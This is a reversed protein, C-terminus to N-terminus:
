RAGDSEGAVAPADCLQDFGAGIGFCPYLPYRLRQARKALNAAHLAARDVKNPTAKLHKAVVNLTSVKDTVTVDAISACAFLLHPM